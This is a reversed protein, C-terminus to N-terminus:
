LPLDIESPIRIVFVRGLAYAPSPAVWEQGGGLLYEGSGPCTVSDVSTPGTIGTVGLEGSNFSVVIITDLYPKCIALLERAISGSPYTDKTFFTGNAGLFEGSALIIPAVDATTYHLFRDSYDDFINGPILLAGLGSLIRYLSMSRFVAREETPIYIDDVPWTAGGVFLWDFISPLDLIGALTSRWHSSAVLGTSAFIDDIELSLQYADQNFNGYDYM